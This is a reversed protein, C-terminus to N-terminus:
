VHPVGLPCGTITIHESEEADHWRFHAIVRRELQSRSERCDWGCNCELWFIEADTENLAQTAADISTRLSM